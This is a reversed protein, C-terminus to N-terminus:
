PEDTWNPPRKAIFASIGEEADRLLLNETMVRSTYAYAEALIQEIGYEIGNHVTKVFHGAGGPGIYTVCPGDNVQAAMKRVLLGGYNCITQAPALFSTLPGAGDASRRLQLLGNTVRDDAAFGELDGLTTTLRANLQPARRLAPTGLRLARQLSPAAASLEAVAPRLRALLRGSTRVFTAQRPLEETGAKLARPGYSISAQLDGRVGDLATFTTRLAAFLDAQREAVPAVEAAARALAPFLRRWGTEPAALNRLAPDLHTVLPLLGALARQLETGRGAIGGGFELLNRQSAARTPADFINFFDDIEVPPPAARRLDITGRQPVTRSARGPTVQVYRLGLPSRPRIAVQSDVPLPGSTRDLKLRLRAAARGDPAVLPEIAAVMGIRAGGRRVDNGTVLGAADPVEVAIDYTRVFPLGSNANYALVVTVITLLVGAAGILVPNAVLAGRGRRPPKESM